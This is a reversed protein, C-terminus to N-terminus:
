PLSYSLLLLSPQFPIHLSFSYYPLSRTSGISPHCALYPRSLPNFTCAQSHDIPQAWYMGIRDSHESIFYSKWKKGVGEVPFNEGHRAQAIQDTH